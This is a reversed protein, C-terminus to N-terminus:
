EKIRLKNLSNYIKDLDWIMDIKNSQEKRGKIIKGNNILDNVIKLAFPLAGTAGPSNYNLIHTSNNHEVIVTDSIFEGNKDIVPARIGSIGKNKFFKPDIQPLFKRVRNIMANKSFGNFMENYVLSLFRKKKLLKRFGKSSAIDYVNPLICKLYSKTDYSFPGNVPFANPGVECIENDRIIWHPDLFPFEHYKPVSYISRKTLSNYKKPSIWYDGRFYLATKDKEIGFAKAINLSNSGAANIIYKTKIEEFSNDINNKVLINEFSNDKKIKSFVYNLFFISGFKNADNYLNKVINGYNVSADRTCLIAGSCNVNPELLKVENKDLIMIEKETLGNDLGWKKYKSLIAMDKDQSAVELVGDENFPINKINCYKLLMNYGLYATKAFNEKKVPDYLFPAHVKGTNRSSSHLGVYKEKEIIFIRNDTLSSLFYALSIGLIGGGIILVDCEKEM